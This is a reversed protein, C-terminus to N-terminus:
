EDVSGEGLSVGLMDFGPRPLGDGVPDVSDDRVFPGRERDEYEKKVENELGREGQAVIRHVPDVPQHPLEPIEDRVKHLVAPELIKEDIAHDGSHSADEHEQRVDQYEIEEKRYHLVGPVHGAGGEDHVLQHVPDTKM